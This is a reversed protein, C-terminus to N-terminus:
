VMVSASIAKAVGSPSLVITNGAAYPPSVFVPAEIAIIEWVRETIVMGSIYRTKISNSGFINYYM